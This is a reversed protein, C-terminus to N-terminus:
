TQAGSWSLNNIFEYLDAQKTVSTIKFMFNNGNVVYVITESFSDNNNVSLVLSTYKAVVTNNGDKYTYEKDEWILTQEENFDFEVFYNTASTNILSSLSTSSLKELKADKSLTGQFMASLINQKLSEKHLKEIEKYENQNAQYTNSNDYSNKYVTILSYGESIANYQTTPILALVVTATILLAVISVVIITITKKM